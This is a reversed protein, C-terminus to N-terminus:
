RRGRRALYIGCLIVAGGVGQWGSLREGLVLWALCAAIAPQLLLGVSSFSAPLHALAFAILSQGSAHSVLALGVLIMWGFASTVLMQDGSLIAVPFLILASGVGSWVMITATSFETRLRGVTLIYSAYFVATLLGLADGGLHELSITFSGGMLVMLGLLAAFMGTLFLSTCRRRCRLWGGVTLFVPPAEGLLAAHAHFTVHLSM